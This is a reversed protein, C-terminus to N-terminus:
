SIHMIFFFACIGNKQMLIFKGSLDIRWLAKSIIVYQLYIWHMIFSTQFKIQFKETHPLCSLAQPSYSVLDAILCYNNFNFSTYLPSSQMFTEVRRYVQHTGFHLIKNKMVPRFIKSDLVKRQKHHHINQAKTQKNVFTLSISALRTLPRWVLFLM